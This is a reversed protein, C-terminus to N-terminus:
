QNKKLFREAKMKTAKRTNNLQRTVFSIIKEKDDIQNYYTDFALITKGIIINKCEQTLRPKLSLKEVKLLENTIKKTLNPKALAIKGSNDVVHAVTVMTDDSLLSYFKSFVDNFKNKTDVRTLNAIIDMANWKIINNDHNLLTIIFDVNSYLKDPNEESIKRLIKACSFKIRANLSSVGEIIASILEYNNKIEQVADDADIEKNALKEIIDTNIM